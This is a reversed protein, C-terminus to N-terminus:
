DEDEGDLLAANLRESLEAAATLRVCDSVYPLRNAALDAIFDRTLSENSLAAEMVEFCEDEILRMLADLPIFRNVAVAARVEDSGTYAAAMLMTTPLFSRRLTEIDQQSLPQTFDFGALRRIRDIPDEM